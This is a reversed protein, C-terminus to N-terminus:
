EHIRASDKYDNCKSNPIHDSLDNGRGHNQSPIKSKLLFPCKPKFLFVPCYCAGPSRVVRVGAHSDSTRWIGGVARNKTIENYAGPPPKPALVDPRFRGDPSVSGAPSHGRLHPPRTKVFLGFCSIFM